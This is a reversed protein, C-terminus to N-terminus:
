TSYLPLPQESGVLQSAFGDFAPLPCSMIFGWLCIELSKIRVLGVGDRGGGVIAKVSHTWWPNMWGKPWLGLSRVMECQYVWLPLKSIKYANAWSLHCNLNFTMDMSSTHFLYAFLFALSRPMIICMIIIGPLSLYWSWSNLTMRLLNSTVQAVFWFATEFFLYILLCIFHIFYLLLAFHFLLFDRLAWSLGLSGFENLICTRKRHEWLEKNCVRVM